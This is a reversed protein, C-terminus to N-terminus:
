TTESGYYEGREPKNKKNQSVNNIIIGYLRRFYM